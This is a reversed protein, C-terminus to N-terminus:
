SSPTSDYERQANEIEGRRTSAWEALIAWPKTLSRGLATLEYDRPPVTAYATRRVLGDRQLARLTLTLMRHSVGPIARMLTNFRMVGSESLHGVIM